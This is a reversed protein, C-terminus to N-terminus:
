DLFPIEQTNNCRENILQQEYKRGIIDNNVM